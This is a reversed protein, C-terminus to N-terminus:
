LIPLLMIWGKGKYIIEPRSKLRSDEKYRKRYEKRSRINLKIVAAKAELYTSYVEPSDKSFFDYLDIWGKNRYFKEPSGPLRIDEKHRLRYKKETTIKLKLVVQRAEKYTYSTIKNVGLFHYFDIWGVNRYARSPDQPLGTDEKYRNKYETYTKIGLRQAAEAAEIYIPFINPGNTNLFEYWDLWGINEYCRNPDSPLRSDDKYRNRYEIHSKVGLNITALKAENYTQYINPAQTELFDYWNIWGKYKYLNYPKSPLRPDERYRERYRSESKIGLRNTSKKAEIYSRYYHLKVEVEDIIISIDKLEDEISITKPIEIDTFGLDDLLKRYRETEMKSEEYINIKVNQFNLVCDFILPIQTNHSRLARGIQQLYVRPSETKRFLMISDIGSVDIGENLMDIAVIIYIQNRIPKLNSFKSLIKENENRSENSTIKDIKVKSFKIFIKELLARTDISHEIGECFVIIKKYELSKYHKSIVKQISYDTILKSDLKRLLSKKIEKDNSYKNNIDHKIDNITSEMDWVSYVYKGMPLIGFAMAKALSMKGACNNGLFEKIDIGESYRDMTASLGVIKPNNNIIPQLGRGYWESAGARHAEDMIIHSFNSSAVKASNHMLYQYTLINVLKEENFKLTIKESPVITLLLERVRNNIYSSPSLILIKNERNLSLKEVLKAIIYTKGTGTAHEVYCRHNNKWYKLIGNYAIKQYPELSIKPAPPYLARYTSFMQNVIDSEDWANINLENNLRTKIGRVYNWVIFCFHRQTLNYKKKYYDQFKSLDKHVDSKDIAKNWNKAQVIFRISNDDPHKIILDCGEDKGREGIRDVLWGNGRFLEALLKEFIEGKFKNFPLNNGFENYFKLPNKFASFDINQRNTNEKCFNKIIKELEIM